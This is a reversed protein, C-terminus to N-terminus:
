CIELTKESFHYLKQRSCVSEALVGVRYLGEPISNKSFCIGFGSATAHLEPELNRELDPRYLNNFKIEYCEGTKDHQLIIFKRYCANDAGAIFAYGQLYINEKSEELVAKWQELYGVYEMSLLLCENEWEAALPKSRKAPVVEAMNEEWLYEWTYSFNTDLIDRNLEQHYFPDKAYLKPHREYLTKRENLLRNLKECNSDDGRSLSEHHWLFVDNCIVNYYGKEYLTYCLDVDNFAVALEQYFGDAEKFKETQMLLCAGTVAMVNRKHKNSYFYHIAEDDKFQLKHAPGLRLNTIGAHQIMTSDPYLLKAGVAGVYTLSAKKLMNALWDATKIEIDDNLFLLYNGKAGEAAANCMASFNFEQAKFIYNFKYKVKMKELIKRNEDSSGNDIVRIEYEVDTTKERISRICNELVEPHDKSPIIISVFPTNKDGFHRVYMAQMKDRITAYSEEMCLPYLNSAHYLIQKCHSILGKKGLLADKAIELSLEYLNSLGDEYGPWVKNLLYERKVGLVNGFYFCELLLDPSFDPKFWPNMRIRKDSNWEDEDGYVLVADSEKLFADTIWHSAYQSLGEVSYTFILIDERYDSPSFKRGCASFPLVKVSLGEASGTMRGAEEKATIYKHYGTYSSDLTDYYQKTHKAILPAQIAAKIGQIM